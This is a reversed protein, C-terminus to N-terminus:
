VNIFPGKVPMIRHNTPIFAAYLAHPFDSLRPRHPGPARFTIIHLLFAIANSMQDLKVCWKHTPTPYLYRIIMRGLLPGLTHSLSDLLIKGLRFPNGYHHIVYAGM